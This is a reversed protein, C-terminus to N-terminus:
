FEVWTRQQPHFFKSVQNELEYGLQMYLQSGQTLVPILYSQSLWAGMM